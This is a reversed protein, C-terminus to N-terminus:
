DGNLRTGLLIDGRRLQVLLEAGQAILAEHSPGGRRGHRERALRALAQAGSWRGPQLLQILRATEANVALFRVTHDQARCVVLRTPEREPRRPRFDPSIRHVPFRYELLRALPSVVPRGTMLDGNAEAPQVPDPATALELEIWEYHALERLFPPEGPRPRRAALWDVFEAAIRHFLPTRCRHSAFFERVLAHWRRDPTLRRIVPFGKALFGEVNNYFLETYIRLRRPEIGPPAPNRKPDRLHAAFRRQVQRFDARSM